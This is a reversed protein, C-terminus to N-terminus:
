KGSIESLFDEQLLKAMLERERDSMHPYIKQILQVPRRVLGAEGRAVETQSGGIVVAWSAQSHDYRSRIARLLDPITGAELPHIPPTKQRM